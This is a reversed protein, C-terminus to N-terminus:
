KINRIIKDIFAMYRARENEDLAGLMRRSLELKVEHHQLYYEKGKGTLDIMVVRRDEQLRSRKVLGKKVLKDVIVTMNSLSSFMHAAIDSMRGSGTQGLFVLVQIEPMSVESSLNHMSTQEMTKMRYTLQEIYDALQTVQKNSINM